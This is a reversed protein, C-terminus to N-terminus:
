RARQEFSFGESAWLSIRQISIKESTIGCTSLILLVKELMEDFCYKIEVLKLHKSALLKEKPNTYMIGSDFMTDPNKWLQLTLKELVPSHQLFYVLASSDASMCWENLLLTKLKNFTPYYKFDRRFIFVRAVSILELHNADSLGNLLVSDNDTITDHNCGGSDCEGYYDRYCEDDCHEGLRIFASVLSPMSMLVPTNLHFDAIELSILNPCSIRTHNQWFDCGYIELYKLSESLIHKVQISCGAMKLELERCSSFDLFSGWLEVYSLQIRKLRQAVLPADPLRIFEYKGSIHVSLARVQCLVAYRIWQKINRFAEFSDGDDDCEIECEDLHSRNRFILLNTIFDNLHQSGRCGPFVSIRLAPVSKWQHRWRRALVCTRVADLSPLFSLAHQLLADPLASIRDEGDDHTIAVAKGKKQWDAM